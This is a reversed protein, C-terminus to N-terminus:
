AVPCGLTITMLSIFSALELQLSTSGLASDLCPFIHRTPPPSTYKLARSAPSGRCGAAMLCIDFPGCVKGARKVYTRHCQLGHRSTSAFFGSHILLSFSLSFCYFSYISSKGLFFARFSHLSRLAFRYRLEGTVPRPVAGSHKVAAKGDICKIRM